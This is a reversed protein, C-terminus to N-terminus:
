GTGHRVRVAAATGAAVNGAAGGAEATVAVSAAVGATLRARDETVFRQGGAEVISGEALRGGTASTVTVRGQAAGAAARFPM